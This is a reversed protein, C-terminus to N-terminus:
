KNELARLGEDAATYIAYCLMDNIVSLDAGGALRVRVSGDPMAISYSACVAGEEKMLDEIRKQYIDLPTVINSFKM